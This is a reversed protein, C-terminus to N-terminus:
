VKAAEGRCTVIIRSYEGRAVFSMSNATGADPLEFARGCSMGARFRKNM